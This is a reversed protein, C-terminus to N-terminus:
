RLHKLMLTIYRCNKQERQFKYGYLKTALGLVGKISNEMEFYPRMDEDNFAYKSNRLKESWYAYDWAQLKFDHVRQKSHLSKL